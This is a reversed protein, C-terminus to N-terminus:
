PNLLVEAYQSQFRYSSGAGQHNELTKDIILRASLLRGAQVDFLIQGQPQNQLLPIRDAVSDPQTQFETTLGLTARGKDIEAVRYTQKVAYKEGTGLPPNLVTHYSRQWAQGAGVAQGPLIVLFPPESEFRSAVNM